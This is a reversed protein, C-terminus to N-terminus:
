NVLFTEEYESLVSSRGPKKNPYKNDRKAGLTSRPIGYMRSPGNLSMGNKIAKLANELHQRSYQMRKKKPSKMTDSYRRAM